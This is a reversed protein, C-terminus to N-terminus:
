IERDLFKKFMELARKPQDYHVGHGADYVRIFTLGDASKIQGAEEGDIMFDQYETQVFRDQGSWELRHVWEQGAMWNCIVDKDGNYLLYGVGHDLAEAVLPTFDEVFDENFSDYM